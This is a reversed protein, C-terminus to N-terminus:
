RASLTKGNFRFISGYDKKMVAVAKLNNYHNKSDCLSKYTDFSKPAADFAEAHTLGTSWIQSSGDEFEAVTAYIKQGLNFMDM